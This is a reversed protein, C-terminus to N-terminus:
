RLKETIYLFDIKATAGMAQFAPRVNPIIAVVEGHLSNLFQKLKDQDKEMKIDFRHIDYKM